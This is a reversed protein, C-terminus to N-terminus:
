PEAVQTYSETRWRPLPALPATVTLVAWSCPVHVRHEDKMGEDCTAQEHDAQDQDGVAEGLGRVELALDSGKGDQSAM